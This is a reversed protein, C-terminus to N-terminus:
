TATKKMTVAEILGKEVLWEPAFRDTRIREALIISELEKTAHLLEENRVFYHYDQFRAIEDSAKRLRRQIEELPESARQCLRKGLIDLSPPAVFVYVAGALREMIQRAGQVDIDLLVDVGKHLAELLPQKPTGYRHGHVEAWEVFAEERILDQFGTEDVFCYEVGDREGERPSRTTYSVSLMTGPMRTLINKCLTTKGVGSPGSVVVLVGEASM